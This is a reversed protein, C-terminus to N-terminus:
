ARKTTLPRKGQIQSEVETRSPDMDRIALPPNIRLATKGASSSGMTVTSELRTWRSRAM